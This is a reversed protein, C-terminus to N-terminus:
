YISKMFALMTRVVFCLVFVVRIQIPWLLPQFQNLIFSWLVYLVLMFVTIAVFKNM